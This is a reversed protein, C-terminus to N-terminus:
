TGLGFVKLGVPITPREPPPVLAPANSLVFFDQWLNTVPWGGASAPLLLAFVGLLITRAIVEQRRRLSTM